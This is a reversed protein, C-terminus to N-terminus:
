WVYFTSECTDSSTTAQITTRVRYTGMKADSPLSLPVTSTYTGGPRSVAVEPNGIIQGAHTIERKEILDIQAERLFELFRM